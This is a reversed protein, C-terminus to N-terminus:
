SDTVLCWGHRYERLRYRGLQTAMHVGHRPAFGTAEKRRCWHCREAASMIFIPDLEKRSALRTGCTYQVYLYRIGAAVIELAASVGSVAMMVM